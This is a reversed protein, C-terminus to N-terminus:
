YKCGTFALFITKENVRSYIRFLSQYRPTQVKREPAKGKTSLLTIRM